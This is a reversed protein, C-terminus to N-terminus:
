PDDYFLVTVLYSYSTWPNIQIDAVTTSKAFMLEASQTERDESKQLLEWGADPMKDEYFEMLTEYKFVKAIHSYAKVGSPLQAVRPIGDMWATAEPYVPINALEPHIEDISAPVATDQKHCASPFLVLLM